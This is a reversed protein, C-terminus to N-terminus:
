PEFWALPGWLPGEQHNLPSVGEGLGRTMTQVM